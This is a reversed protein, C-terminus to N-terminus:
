VGNCRIVIIFCMKKYTYGWGSVKDAKNKTKMSFSYSKWISSLAALSPLYAKAMKWDMTYLLGFDLWSTLFMKSKKTDNQLSARKM